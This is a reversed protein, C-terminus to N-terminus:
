LDEDTTEIVEGEFEFGRELGDFYKDYNPKIWLAAEGHGLEVAKDIVEDWDTLDFGTTEMTKFCDWVFKPVSVPSVAYRLLEEADEPFIIVNNTVLIMGTDEEREGQWNVEGNLVYGWPKLFNNIIYQLWEVYDYFKEAGNWKIGGGDATPIWKCWLGPQTKPPRNYNVVSVESDEDWKENVFYCGEEGVPLNVAERAPDPINRLIAPNRKIRRTRSFELLYIAESDLLRKNLDFKGDFITTYGM